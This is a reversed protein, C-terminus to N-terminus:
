EVYMYGLGTPNVLYIAYRGMASQLGSMLSFVDDDAMEPRSPWIQSRIEPPSFLRNNNTVLFALLSFEDQSLELPEDDFSAQRGAIDVCLDEYYIKKPQRRPEGHRRRMLANIRAIIERMSFPKLIYDDAGADLGRIVDHENDISSSFILPITRTSPNGKLRRALGEGDLGKLAVDIILLSYESLPANGVKEADHCLDVAYGSKELSFKMLECLLMDGDAILIRSRTVANSDSATQNHSFTEPM